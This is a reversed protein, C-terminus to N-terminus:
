NEGYSASFYGQLVDKIRDKILVGPDNRLLGQKVKRYQVPLFQSLLVLPIKQRKLNQILRELAKQLGPDTWYYRSRDFLSYKRAFMLEKENGHYYDKWYEPKKKMVKELTEPIRSLEVGPIDMFFEREIYSLLFSAERMAFSLAPGVKLVAFGDEVMEQLASPEQYDTSHGEFVLNEHKKLVSCLNATKERNYGFVKQDGFEIGSQVVVAVVREWASDLGHKKFAKRTEFVTKEFDDPRTIEPLKEKSARGGPAPVETGIVYVPVPAEPQLASLNRYTEESARCLIASREATLECPLPKSRDSRDDGLHMSADLHVKTFGAKVYEMIMKCAKDMAAGAKEKRWPYPGLHDGGLILMDEAFGTKRVLSFVLKKFDPPRMGTYGGDQNVQNSTSEIIIHRSDLHAQELAAELVFVNASCISCIGKRIGSKQQQVLNVLYNKSNM